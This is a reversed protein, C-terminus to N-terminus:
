VGTSGIGGTRKYGIVVDSQVCGYPLFLGQAFRSKERLCMNTDSTIKALIHGENDSQIYDGDILPVTNAFRMGYKFGLSSRPLLILCWGPQMSAKIGTPITVTKGACLFFPIPLYFDYGASEKTARTPLKIKEWIIKIIEPDTEDDTFGCTKCDQLFQDFSVKYFEAVGEM